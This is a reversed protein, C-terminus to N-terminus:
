RPPKEANSSSQPTPGSEDGPEAALRDWVAGLIVASACDADISHRRNVDTNEDREHIHRSCDDLLEVNGLWLGFSNRISRGLTFTFGQAKARTTARLRSKWEPGLRHVVIRAAEYM